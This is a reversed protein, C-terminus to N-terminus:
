NAYKLKMSSYENVPSADVVGDITHVSCLGIVLRSYLRPYLINLFALM